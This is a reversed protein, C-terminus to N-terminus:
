LLCRTAHLLGVRSHLLRRCRPPTVVNAGALLGVALVSGLILKAFM